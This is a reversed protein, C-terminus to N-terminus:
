YFGVQEFQFFLAKHFADAFVSPCQNLWRCSKGRQTSFTLFAVFIEDDKEATIVRLSLNPSTHLPRGDYGYLRGRIAVSCEGPVVSGVLLM